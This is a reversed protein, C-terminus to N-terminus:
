FRLTSRAGGRMAARAVAAGFLSQRGRGCARGPVPTLKRSTALPARRGADVDIGRVAIDPGILAAARARGAATGDVAVVSWEIGDELEIPLGAGHERVEALAHHHCWVADRHVLLAVHPDGIERAVLRTGLAM